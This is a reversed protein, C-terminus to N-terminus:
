TDRVPRVPKIPDRMEFVMIWAYKGIAQPALLVRDVADLLARVPRFLPTKRLPVAALAALHFFRVHVQRFHRRVEDLSEVGLIHEVEWATRLHPTRRRYAHIFPNHRLAEICLMAGGPKLVRALEGLARPLDVHHLAGYEVGIDFHDDPFTMAEGDMVTFRCRTHVGAERANAKANAVGEPSLDIGVVEAGYHAAAVGNEGNGCAFDLVRTGATCHRAMWAAQYQASAHTISYFKVNSFHYAFAERDRIMRDLDHAEEAVHTDSRREGGQLITRRTRSHAIELRKREELLSEDLPSEDLPSEDLPAADMPPTADPDRPTM